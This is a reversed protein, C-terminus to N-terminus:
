CPYIPRRPPRRRNRAIEAERERAEYEARALSGSEESRRVAELETAMTFEAVVTGAFAEAKTMQLPHPRSKQLYLDRLAHWLAQQFESRQGDDPPVQCANAADYASALMGQRRLVGLMECGFLDRGRGTPYFDAYHRDAVAAVVDELDSM